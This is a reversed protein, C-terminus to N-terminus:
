RAGYFETLAELLDKRKRRSVELVTGDDIEVSDGRLRAVHELNVLYYRNCKCFHAEELKEEYEKLSGWSTYTGNAAHFQLEHKRVEVFLLDRSAIVVRGEGDAVWLLVGSKRALAEEVRGMTLAFSYYRLPKILYGLADVEYGTSAYQAMNTVYVVAVERDLKRLRRACEIGGLRPMEVDLFILDYVPKYEALLDEGDEILTVRYRSSDGKFYRDLCAEVREADAREDDVVAVRLMEEATGRAWARGRM